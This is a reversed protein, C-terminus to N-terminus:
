KFVETKCVITKIIEDLEHASNLVHPLLELHFEKNEPHLRIVEILGMIRSLPARVVHSQTWAIERLRSNQEEIAHIYNVSDTIDKSNVVIGNVAPDDLLNTGISQLWRYEGSQLRFRYPPTQVRRTTIIEGLSKGIMEQDEEHIFHMAYSGIVEEPQRAFM